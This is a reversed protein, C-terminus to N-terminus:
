ARGLEIEANSYGKEKDDDEGNWNTTKYYTAYLILQVIGSISGLGNPILIYPDFKLCAYIVWVIGNMLSALSLFLPMYRVSKTKIVLKMVTLPSAYMIVNFVICLIGILMSRQKTTPLFYLTCFIAVAMFIVEIMMAITIKRRIPSTAFIFFITVYVLEMFLGTGNITIVLLSNTHCGDSEFYYFYYPDPKFESVSKMKWIKVMTPIPACFLGFSIM